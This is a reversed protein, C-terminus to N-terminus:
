DKKKNQVKQAAKYRKLFTAYAKNSEDAILKNEYPRHYDYKYYRTGLMFNDSHINGRKVKARPINVKLAFRFAQGLHCFSRM